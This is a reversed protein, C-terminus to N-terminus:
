KLKNEEPVKADPRGIRLCSKHGNEALTLLKLKSTGTRITWVCLRVDYKKYNKSYSYTFYYSKDNGACTRNTSGTGPVLVVVKLFDYM